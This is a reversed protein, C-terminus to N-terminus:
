VFSTFEVHRLSAILVARFDLDWLIFVKITMKGVHVPVLSMTMKGVHVPVSSMTMKGVHVPVSSM